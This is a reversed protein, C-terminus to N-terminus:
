CHQWCTRPLFKCDDWWLAKVVFARTYLRLLMFITMLATGVGAAAYYQYGLFPGNPDLPMKGAPPIGAPTTYIDTGPPLADAM